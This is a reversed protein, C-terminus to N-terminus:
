RPANSSKSLERMIHKKVANDSVGLRKGTGRYGIEDVMSQLVDVSPWDIKEKRRTAGKISTGVNIVRYVSKKRNRGRWTNTQSHCNPCLLRLNEIRNDDSVGNIHDLELTLCQGRWESLGCWLCRAKLIGNTILRKKLNARSYKSNEVLVDDLNPSKYSGRGSKYGVFHSTSLNMKDAYKKVTRWNGAAKDSLGLSRIVDVWCQSEAVIKPLRSVDWTVRSVTFEM